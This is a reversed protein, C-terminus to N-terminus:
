ASTLGLQCLDVGPPIGVLQGLPVQGTGNMAGQNAPWNFANKLYREDMAFALPHRIESSLEGDRIVGGTASGGCNRVGGQRMGQRTLDYRAASTSDSQPPPSSYTAHGLEYVFRHNPEIIHLLAEGGQGIPPASPMANAPVNVSSWQVAGNRT